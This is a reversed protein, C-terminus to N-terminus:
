ESLRITNKVFYIKNKRSSCIKRGRHIILIDAIDDVGCEQFGLQFSIHRFLRNWIKLAEPIASAFDADMRRICYWNNGGSKDQLYAETRGIEGYFRM